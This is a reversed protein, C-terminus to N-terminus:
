LVQNSAQTEYFPMIAFFFILISIADGEAQIGLGRGDVSLGSGRWKRSEMQWWSSNVPSDKSMKGKKSLSSFFIPKQKFGWM